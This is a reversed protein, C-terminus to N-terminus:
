IQLKSIKLDTAVRSSGTFASVHIKEYEPM